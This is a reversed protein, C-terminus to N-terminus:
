TVFVLPMGGRTSIRHALTPNRIPHGGGMESADLINAFPLEGSPNRPATAIAGLSSPALRVGPAMESCAPLPNSSGIASYSVSEDM